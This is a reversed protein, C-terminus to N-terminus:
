VYTQRLLEQAQRAWASDPYRALFGVLVDRAQAPDIPLLLRGLRLRAMEAEPADPTQVLIARLLWAATDTDRDDEEARSALRLRERPTLLLGLGLRRAEACARAAETLNDQKTWARVAALMELAAAQRSDEEGEQALARSLEVRVAANDPDHDLFARFHTIAGALLSQGQGAAARADQL